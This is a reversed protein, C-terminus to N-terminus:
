LRKIILGSYNGYNSQIINEIPIKIVTECYKKLEKLGKQAVIAKAGSEYNFPTTVICVTQVGMDKAIKAIVPLAGTGTGGGMGAVLLLFKTDVLMERIEVINEMAAKEGLEPNMNTEWGMTLVSGIQIKNQIPSNKLANASTHCVYYDAGLISNQYMNNVANCGASGVGIIKITNKEM